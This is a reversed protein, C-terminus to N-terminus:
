PITEAWSPNVHASKQSSCSGPRHKCQTVNLMTCYFRIGLYLHCRLDLSMIDEHAASRSALSALIPDRTNGNGTQQAFKRSLQSLVM